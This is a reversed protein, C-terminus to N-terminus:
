AHVAGAAHGLAADADQVRIADARKRRDGPRPRSRYDHHRHRPVQRRHLALREHCGRLQGQRQVPCLRAQRRRFNGTEDGAIWRDFPAVEPEITREFASLAIVICGSQDAAGPLARRFKAPYARKRAHAGRYRRGKGRELESCRCRAPASRRCRRRRSRPTAAMGTSPRPACPRDRDADADQAADAQGSDGISRAENAAWGMRRIAPRAPPKAPRRLDDSRLVFRARTRGTGPKRDSAGPPRAIIARKM